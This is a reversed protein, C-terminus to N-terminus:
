KTYQHKCDKCVYRQKGERVGNKYINLSGCNECVGIARYIAKKTDESLVKRAHFFPNDLVYEIADPIREEPLGYEFLIHGIISLKNEFTPVYLDIAKMISKMVFNLNNIDYPDFPLDSM